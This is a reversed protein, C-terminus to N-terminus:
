VDAIVVVFGDQNIMYVICLSRDVRALLVVSKEPLCIVIFSAGM